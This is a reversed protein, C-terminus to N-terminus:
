VSKNLKLLKKIDVSLRKSIRKLTPERVTKNRGSELYYICPYAIGIKKAFATRTLKLARRKRYLFAALPSLIADVEELLAAELKAAIKKIKKM